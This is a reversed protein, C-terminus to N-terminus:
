GIGGSYRVSADLNSIGAAPGAPGSLGPSCVLFEIVRLRRGRREVMPAFPVVIEGIREAPGGDHFYGSPASKM